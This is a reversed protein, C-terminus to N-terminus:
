SRRQLLAELPVPLTGPVEPGGEEERGEPTGWVCETSGLTCLCPPPWGPWQNEAWRGPCHPLLAM